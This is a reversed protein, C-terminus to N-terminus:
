PHPRNFAHSPHLWILTFVPHHTYHIYRKAPPFNTVSFTYRSTALHTYRGPSSYPPRLTHGSSLTYRINAFSHLSRTILITSTANPRNLTQSPHLLILTVVQYHTHHIYRKAPPFHTVSTLLHTYRGPLSYPPHLMQGTSSTYRIYGFSHLSRTILVTSTVNLQCFTHLPRSRTAQKWTRHFEVSEGCARDRM